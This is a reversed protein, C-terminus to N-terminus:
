QLYKPRVDWSVVINLLVLQMLGFWRITYVKYVVSETVPAAEDEVVANQSSPQQDPDDTISHDITVNANGKAPISTGGMNSLETWEDNPTLLHIAEGQAQEAQHHDRM